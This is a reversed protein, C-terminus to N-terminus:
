LTYRDGNDHGRIGHLRQEPRRMDQIHIELEFPKSMVQTCTGYRIEVGHLGALNRRENKM